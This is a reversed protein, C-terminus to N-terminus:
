AKEKRAARIETPTLGNYKEIFERLKTPEMQSLFEPIVPPLQDDACGTASDPDDSAEARVRCRDAELTALPTTTLAARAKLWACNKHNMHVKLSERCWACYIGDRTEFDMGDEPCAEELAKRYEASQAETALLRSQLTGVTLQSNTLENRLRGNIERISELGDVVEKIAYVENPLANIVKDIQPCSQPITEMRDRLAVRLGAITAEAEALKAEATTLAARLSDPERSVRIVVPGIGPYFLNFEKANGETIELLSECMVECAKLRDM